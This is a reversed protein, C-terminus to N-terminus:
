CEPLKSFSVTLLCVVLFEAYLHSEFVKCNLIVLHWQFLIFFTKGVLTYYVVLILSTGYLEQFCQADRGRVEGEANLLQLNLTVVAPSPVRGDTPFWTVQLRGPPYNQGNLLFLEMPYYWKEDGYYANGECLLEKLLQSALQSQALWVM